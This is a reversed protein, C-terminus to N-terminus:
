SETYDLPGSGTFKFGVKVFDGFDAEVEVSAIYIGADADAVTDPFWYNNTDYYFRIDQILTGDKWAAILAKQGNTDSPAFFGSVEGEWDLGTIAKKQWAPLETGTWEPASKVDTKPTIKWKSQGQVVNAGLRLSCYRGTLPTAM